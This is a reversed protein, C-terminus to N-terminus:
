HLKLEKRIWNYKSENNVWDKSYVKVKVLEMKKM